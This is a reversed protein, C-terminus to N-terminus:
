TLATPDCLERKPQHKSPHNNFYVNRCANIAKFPLSNKIVEEFTEGALLRIIFNCSYIGCESGDTQYPKTNYKYLVKGKKYDTFNKIMNKINGIPGKGTSDSYYIEGRDIDIYLAVWHSGSQGMKDHNYVVGLRNKGKRKCVDFNFDHLTCTDYKDCDLPVANLFKFDPYIKEYQKM